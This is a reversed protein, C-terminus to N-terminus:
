TRTVPIIELIVFRIGGSRGKRSSYCSANMWETITQLPFSQKLARDEGVQSAEALLGTGSPAPLWTKQAQQPNIQRAWVRAETGGPGRLGEVGGGCGWCWWVCVIGGVRASWLGKEM